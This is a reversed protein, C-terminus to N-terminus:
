GTTEKENREGPREKVTEGFIGAIVEVVKYAKTVFADDKPTPTVNVIALALAHAAVLIGVIADTNGAIFAIIESM